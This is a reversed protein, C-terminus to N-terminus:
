KVKNQCFVLLFAISDDGDGSSLLSSQLPAAASSLRVTIRFAIFTWMQVWYLICTPTHVYMVYYQTYKSLPSIISYTLLMLEKEWLYPFKLRVGFIFPIVSIDTISLYLSGELCTTAISDFSIIVIAKVAIESAGGFKLASKIACALLANLCLQQGDSWRGVMWTPPLFQQSEISGNNALLDCSYDDCGILVCCNDM